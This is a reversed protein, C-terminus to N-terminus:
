AAFEQGYASGVKSWEAMADTRKSQWRHEKLELLYPPPLGTIRRWGLWATACVTMAKSKNSTMRWGLQTATISLPELNGCCGLILAPDLCLGCPMQVPCHCLLDHAMCAPNGHHVTVGSQWLMGLDLCSRSVSYVANAHSLPVLLVLLLSDCMSPLMSIFHCGASACATHQAAPLAPYRGDALGLMTVYLRCPSLPRSNTQRSYTKWSHARSSLGRRFCSATLSLANLYWLYFPSCSPFIAQGASICLELSTHSAMLSQASHKATIDGM